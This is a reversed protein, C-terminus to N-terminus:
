LLCYLTRRIARFRGYRCIRRFYRYLQVAEM